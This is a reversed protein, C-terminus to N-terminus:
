SQGWDVEIRTVWCEHNCCKFVTKTEIDSSSCAVGGGTTDFSTTITTAANLEPKPILPECVKTCAPCNM